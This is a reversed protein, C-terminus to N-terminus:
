PRHTRDRWISPTRLAIAVARKAEEQGVIFRNLESVVTKPLM